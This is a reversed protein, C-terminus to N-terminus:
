NPLVEDDQDGLQYVEEPNVPDGPMAYSETAWAAIDM